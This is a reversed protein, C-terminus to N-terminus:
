KTKFILRKDLGTPSQSDEGTNQQSAPFPQVPPQSAPPMRSGSCSWKSTDIDSLPLFHSLDLCFYCFLFDRRGIIIAGKRGRPSEQAAEEGSWRCPGPSCAARGLPPRHGPEAMQWATTFAPARGHPEPGELAFGPLAPHPAAGLGHPRLAVPHHSTSERQLCRKSGLGKRCPCFTLTQPPPGHPRVFSWSPVNAASPATLPACPLSRLHPGPPKHVGVDPNRRADVRPVGSSAETHGRM